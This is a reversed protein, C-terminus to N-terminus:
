KELRELAKKLKETTKNWIPPLLEYALSDLEVLYDLQEEAARAVDILARAHSRLEAILNGDEPSKAEDIDVRVIIQRDAEISSHYNLWPGATAEKEMRDLEDPKM